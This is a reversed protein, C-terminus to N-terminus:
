VEGAFHLAIGAAVCALLTPIMEAKLRFVVVTASAFLAV